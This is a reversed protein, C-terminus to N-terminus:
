HPSEVNGEKIFLLLKWGMILSNYSDSMFYCLQLFTYALALFATTGGWERGTQWGQEVKGEVGGGEVVGREVEGVGGGTM